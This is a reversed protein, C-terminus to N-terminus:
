KLPLSMAFGAGADIWETLEEDEGIGEPTVVVWGRMIRGTFDFVRTHPQSLADEYGEPGVRVILEGGIIGCAMNGFLLYCIGGFMKKEVFGDREELVERIRQALGEDYAM